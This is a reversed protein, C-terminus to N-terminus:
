RSRSFVQFQAGLWRAFDDSTRKLLSTEVREILTFRSLLVGFAERPWEYHTRRQEVFTCTKADFELEALTWRSSEWTLFFLSRGHQVVFPIRAADGAEQDSLKADAIPTTNDRDGREQIPLRCRSEAEGLISADEFHKRMEATAAESDDYACGTSELSGNRSGDDNSCDDFSSGAGTQMILPGETELGTDGIRGTGTNQVKPLPDTLPM